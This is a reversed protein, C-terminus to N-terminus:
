FGWPGKPFNGQLWLEFVGYFALTLLISGPVIWAWSMPKMVRFMILLFLITCLIFGLHSFLLSYLILAGFVVFSRGWSAGKLVSVWLRGERRRLTAQTLGALAFFSLTISALFPMFGPGPSSLGGIRYTLLVNLMMCIGVFFWIASSVQQNNFRKM